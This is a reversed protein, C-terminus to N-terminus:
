VAPMRRFESVLARQQRSMRPKASLAIEVLREVGFTQVIVAMSPAVQDVLWSRIRDVSHSLEPRSVLHLCLITDVFDSWWKCVSCRSINSDDRDIFKIKDNLVQASLEGVSRGDALHQFFSLSNKGRFVMECRVWHGQVGQEAAKDYIRIRFSSSKAGFYVTTGTDSSGDFSRHIDRKQLRSNVDNAEAKDAILDIDLFSDHDDCAIDLRSVNSGPVDCLMNALVFFPLEGHASLAEFTRCGKGSMSVCVGMDHFHEDERPDYCVMIGGFSLVRQYGNLGFGTDVFLAPDMKLFNSIVEQPTYEAVDVYSANEYKKTSVTFTLWDILVQARM